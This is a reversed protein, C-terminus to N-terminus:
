VKKLAKPKRPKKPCVFDEVTKPINEYKKLKETLEDNLLKLVAIEGAHAEVLKVQKEKKAAYYRANRVSRDIVKKPETEM